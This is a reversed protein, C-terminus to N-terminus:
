AGILPHRRLARRRSGARRDDSGAVTRPIQGTLPWMARLNAAATPDADLTRPIQGTPPRMARLNRRHRTPTM